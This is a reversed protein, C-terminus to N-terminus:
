ILKSLTALLYPSGVLKMYEDIAKTALTNERFILAERDDFRDLEAVGLDILFDKAKGTSQLVRVLVSMLEEKDRASLSPELSACLEQYHFTLYEAFEKYQVIPLVKFNCYRGRLRLTPMNPKEKGLPYWRELPQHMAALEKLPVSMSSIPSEKPWLGEEEQVLCVQLEVAPPLTKLDFHEGWFLTGIPSAQKATTRAYLVGDLQIECHYHKRPSLHRAEYVWLSLRHEMRQCNDMSPQVAQRLNEMWHTREAASSCSFCYRKGAGPVPQDTRDNLPLLGKTLILWTLFCYAASISSVAHNMVVHCEHLIIKLYWVLSQAHKSETGTGEQIGFTLSAGVEEDRGWLILQGDQLSVNAVDWPPVGPGMSPILQVASDDSIEKTERVTQSPGEQNKWHSVSRLYKRVSLKSSREQAKSIRGPLSFARQFISRKTIVKSDQSVLPPLDDHDPEPVESEPQSQVRKWKQIKRRCRSSEPGLEPVKEGIPLATQWLYAKLLTSGNPWKELSM